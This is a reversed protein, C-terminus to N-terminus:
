GKKISGAATGTLVKEGNQNECWVDLTYQIQSNIEDKSVIKGKTQIIDGETVPGIFKLGNTQGNTLWDDGFVDIMFEALHGLYQTASVYVRDLGTKKAFDLDTHINKKPWGSSSFAGGSFAWIREYTMKKKQGSFEDGIASEKTIM